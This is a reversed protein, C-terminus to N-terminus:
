KIEEMVSGCSLMEDGFYPNKIETEKSLWMAGKGELAMPCHEHYLSQSYGFTKALEYINSTIAAFGERQKSIEKQTSITMVQKQIEPMYKDYIVKQESSLLSKDFGDMSKKFDSASKVISAADSKIFNDKLLLYNEIVGNIYKAVNVDVNTFQHTIVKVEEESAVNRSQQTTDMNHGEHKDTEQNNNSCSVLLVFSTAVGLITKKMNMTKYKTTIKNKM